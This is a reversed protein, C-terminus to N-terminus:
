LCHLCQTLWSSKSKWPTCATTFTCCGSSFYRWTTCWDFMNELTCELPYTDGRMNKQLTATM